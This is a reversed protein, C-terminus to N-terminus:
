TRSRALSGPEPNVSFGQRAFPRPSNPIQLLRVTRRLHYITRFGSAHSIAAHFHYFITGPCPTPSPQGPTQNHPTHPTGRGHGHRVASAWRPIRRRSSGIHLQAQRLRPKAPEPWYHLLAATTMRDRLLVVSRKDRSHQQIKGSLNRDIKEKLNLNKPRKRGQYVM